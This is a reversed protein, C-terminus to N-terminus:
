PWEIRVQKLFKTYEQTFQNPNEVKRYGGFVDIYRSFDEWAKLIRKLDDERIEEFEKLDPDAYTVFMAYVQNNLNDYYEDYIQEDIDNKHLRILSQLNYKTSLWLPALHAFNEQTPHNVTDKLADYMAKPQLNYNYIEFEVDEIIEQKEQIQARLNFYILICILGALIIIAWYFKQKM